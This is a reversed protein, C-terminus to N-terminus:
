DMDFKKLTISGPKACIEYNTDEDLQARQVMVEPLLVRNGRFDLTTILSGNIGSEEMVKDAERKHEGERLAVTQAFLYRAIHDAVDIKTAGTVGQLGPSVNAEIVLPGKAGVLIDVGCIDAKIAHATKIALKKTKEDLVTAEGKGGSHTNARKETVDAKREMAAIVKGGVVIVRLDTGGTEVYEQLIFPQNLATFADLISSGSAYSEAFVVGKGGTGQPFKMIIPFNMQKMISKAAEITAAQYTRPMPINQQQLALQTLLKDHAVTFASAEIPMFCEPSLLTTIGHLLPAYRFSGKAYICDYEELPDGQYLVEATDGSFNVEIKTLRIDDVHAFYKRMAEITWQSSTSGLSILAARYKQEM